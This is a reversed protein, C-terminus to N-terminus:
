FDNWYASKMSLFCKNNNNISFVITSSLIKTFVTICKELIRQHDNTVNYIDKSDSKILDIHGQQIFTNIEKKLFRVSELGKFLPTKVYENTNIYIRM